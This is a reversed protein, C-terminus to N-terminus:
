SSLGCLQRSKQWLEEAKVGDGVDEEFKDVKCEAYYKGSVGDEEKAIACQLITQAGDKPTKMLFWVFPAFTLSILINQRFPMHRHIGTRVVGPNVANVTVKSGELHKALYLTMLLVSLKSQAYAAGPKYERTEYQLDNLDLQGLRYASATVNIIRAGDPAAKLLDLLLSTLLFHGLYNTQFHIEMGDETKAQPHCMVGANNVLIDLRAENQKFLVVFERVSRMSALDLPLVQINKNGTSTKLEEVVVMAKEVDRCGLIVRAGREALLRAVERGIGTNGGTIVATKGDAREQTQSQAGRMYSRIGYILGFFLAIAIPYFSHMFDEGPLKGEFGPFM